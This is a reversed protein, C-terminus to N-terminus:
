SHNKSWKEKSVDAAYAHPMQKAPMKADKIMGRTIMKRLVEHLSHGMRAHLDIVRINTAM